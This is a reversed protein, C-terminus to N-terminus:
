RETLNHITIRKGYIVLAMMDDAIAIQGIGKFWIRKDGRGKAKYCSITIPNGRFKEHFGKFYGTIYQKDGQELKDYSLINTDYLIKCIDKNADQISKQLITKTIHFMAKKGRLNDFAKQENETPSRM